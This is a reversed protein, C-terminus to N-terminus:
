YICKKKLVVITTAFTKIIIVSHWSISLSLCFLKRVFLASDASKVGGHITTDLVIKDKLTPRQFASKASKTRFRNQKNQAAICNM